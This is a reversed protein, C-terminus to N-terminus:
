FICNLLHVNIDVFISRNYYWHSTIGTINLRIFLHIITAGISEFLWGAALNKQKRRFVTPFDRGTTM